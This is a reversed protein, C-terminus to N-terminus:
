IETARPPPSATVHPGSAAVRHRAFFTALMQGAFVSAMPVVELSYREDGAGAFHVLAFVIPFVALPYLERWRRRASIMGAAALGWFIASGLIYPYRVFPLMSIYSGTGTWIRPYQTIRVWLWHFPAAGIREFAAQSMRREAESPTPATKVIEVFQKDRDYTAYENGSGYPVNITGLLINAGWGMSAVPIFAHQTIANRVTWPLVVLLAVLALRFNTSRNTKTLAAILLIVCVAPLCVARAVTAAGLFVGALLGHQRRWLWVCATSLFMFLTDTLLTATTYVTYPALAVIFGAIIAADLTFAELTISFVLLAVLTGLAAQALRVELM